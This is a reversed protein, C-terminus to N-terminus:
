CACTRCRSSPIPAAGRGRPDGGGGAGARGVTRVVLDKPAYFTLWGDKVQTSPLYVQPESDRELGRVRVDGVVGVVVRERLAVSFAPRDSGPGALLREAFSRSVVAVFQSTQTDSTQSAAAAAAGPDGDDHLLGPTVFRVSASAPTPPRGVTERTIVKWIGGRMVMPLFSTYAASQVGPVARM